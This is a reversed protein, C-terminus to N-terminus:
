IGLKEVEVTEKHLRFFNLKLLILFLIWSILLVVWNFIFSFTRLLIVILLTFFLPFFREYRGLSDSLRQSVVETMIARLTVQDSADIGFQQRFQERVQELLMGQQVASVESFQPFQQKAQKQFYDGVTQSLNFRVGDQSVYPLGKVVVEAVKHYFAKTDSRFDSQVNTYIMFGVLILLAYTIVWQTNGLTRRISFNLQSKEESQLRRQFLLSLFFFILGGLFIYIDKPMIALYAIFGATNFIFFIVRNPNIIAFFSIAVIWFATITVPYIWYTGGAPGFLVERIVFWDAILLSTAIIGMSFQKFRRVLHTQHQQGQEISEGIGHM